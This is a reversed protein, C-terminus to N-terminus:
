GGLGVLMSLQGGERAIKCKTAHPRRFWVSSAEREDVTVFRAVGDEELFFRGGKTPKFDLALPKGKMTRAWIIQKGCFRCISATEGM